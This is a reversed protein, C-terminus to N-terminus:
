GHIMVCRRFARARRVIRSSRAAMLRAREDASMTDRRAIEELTRGCGTGLGTIEHMVFVRTCPGPM